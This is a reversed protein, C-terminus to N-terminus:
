IVMELVQATSDLYINALTLCIMMIVSRRVHEKKM